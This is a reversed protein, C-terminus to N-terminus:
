KAELRFRFQNGDSYIPSSGEFEELMHIDFWTMTKTIEWDTGGDLPTLPLDQTGQDGLLEILKAKAALTAGQADGVVKFGLTYEADRVRVKYTRGGSINFYVVYPYIAEAPVQDLYAATWESHGVLRSQITIFLAGLPDSLTM